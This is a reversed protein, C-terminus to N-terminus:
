FDGFKSQTKSPWNFVKDKIRLGLCRSHSNQKVKATKLRIDLYIGSTIQLYPDGIPIANLYDYTYNRFMLALLTGSGTLAQVAAIGAATLKISNWANVTISEKAIHGLEGSNLDPDVADFDGVVMSSDFTGLQICLDGDVHTPYFYCDIAQITGDVESVNFLSGRRYLYYKSNVWFIGVTTSNTSILLGDADVANRTDAWVATSRVVFSGNKQAIDIKM